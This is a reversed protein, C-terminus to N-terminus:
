QMFVSGVTTVDANQQSCWYHFLVLSQRQTNFFFLLIENDSRMSDRQRVLRANYLSCCDIIQDILECPAELVRDRPLKGEKGKPFWDQVYVLGLFRYGNISGGCM